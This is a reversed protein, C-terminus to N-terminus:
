PLTSAASPLHDAAGSRRGERNAPHIVMSRASTRSVRTTKGRRRERREVLFLHERVHISRNRLNRSGRFTNYVTEIVEVRGYRGLLADFQERTIFGESNYSILLHSADTHEVLDTLAELAASRKNYSSRRWGQAIGSVKSIEKPEENRVILNLMFYNSGYPHQNYPPDFYAVDFGGIRRVLANADEQCVEYACEFRSLVPLHLEIRGMIRSLADRNSGGFQGVGNPGKYFGKFVGSTNAHVSAEHLLPALLFVRYREPVSDVLHRLSDIRMANDTTYFVRDDPRIADDRKPAYLRRIFGNRVPLSEAAEVVRRHHECLEDWDIASRNALYCEGVIRAYEELDNSVLSAAHQKFFRSVVGSGAFADLMRLKERGLRRKVRHLAAAVTGLLARKNGIYTLLQEKLYRQDERQPPHSGVADRLSRNGLSTM